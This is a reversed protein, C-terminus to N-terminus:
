ERVLWEVSSAGQVPALTRALFTLTAAIDADTQWPPNVILMGSAALNAATAPGIRLEALLIRRVGSDRLRRHFRAVIPTDKVPYWLCYVGDPWRRHAALCTDAMQLFEDDREFPPDILVLGRREPPPVLARLMEYGDRVHVAARADHRLRQKLLAAEDPQKEAVILRDHNRALAAAILPSGPYYRPTAAPQASNFDRVIRLLEQLAAPLDAAVQWLRGIGARAEGTRAASAAATDYLGAGAHTDFYCWPGSKRSLAQLLIVLISHKMLDAFNGAHYLHRYNM